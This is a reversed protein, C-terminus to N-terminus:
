IALAGTQEGLYTAHIEPDGLLEQGTGSKVILGNNLVYARQVLKLTLFAKQEVILVSVGTQHLRSVADLVQGVVIPSLGMSPEDLLLLRPESMLARGIALMEQQGGSLTGGLQGARERLIPFLTFQKELSREIRHRDEKRRYRSFAGLKLNELVTLDAFIKRGEPVMAIGLEVIQHAKLQDIRKGDFRIAGQALPHVGAITRMTTSKGAGNRGIIGVFEGEGLELDIGHLAEVQGYKVRINEVRLFSM